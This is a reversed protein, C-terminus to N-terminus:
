QLLYGSVKNIIDNGTNKLTELIMENVSPPFPEAKELLKKTNNSLARDDGSIKRAWTDSWPNKIELTEQLIIKGTEV